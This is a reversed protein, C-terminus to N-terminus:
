SAAKRATKTKAERGLLKEVIQGTITDAIQGLDKEIRQTQAELETAAAALRTELM